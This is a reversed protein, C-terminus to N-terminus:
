RRARPRDGVALAPREATATGLEGLFRDVWADVSAGAVRAKLAVMRAVSASTPPASAMEAISEALRDEDYPNVLYAERLVEAAGATTSLLLRGDNAPRAAVYEFAVLNMGDRLPTVLAADAAVYYAALERSTMCTAFFRVPETVPSGFRGNIRGVAAEVRHRLDRYTDISERSPVGIQVLTAATRLEPRAELAREFAELREVVGKAYDLRDVAVLIRAGGTSRRLAEADALVGADSSLSAWAAVDTGIPCAIIQAARRGLDVVLREPPLSAHPISHEELAQHMSRVYSPVHLGVVDAGLIGALLEDAWPLVRLLDAAPWPIHWFFGIRLDPRRTRLLAPVLALQYDHIWVVARPAAVDAAADAVARNVERYARLDSARFRCREIFAHALPWLAGNCAGAYWENRVQAPLEIPRVEFALESDATAERDAGTALWCGRTRRLLPLLASIVGGPARAVGGGRAPVFPARASVVVLSRAGTGM